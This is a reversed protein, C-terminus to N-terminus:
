TSHNILSVRAGSTAPQQWQYPPWVASKIVTILGNV